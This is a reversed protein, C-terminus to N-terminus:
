GARSPAQGAQRALLAPGDTVPDFSAVLEGTHKARYMAQDARRILAESSGHPAASAAVGVAASVRLTTATGSITLSAPVEVSLGALRDAIRQAAALTEERSAEDLFVVFEDGAFRCPTDQRRVCGRLTEAVAVLVEDGVAHGHTDNVAKFDDVDVFVVGITGNPRAALAMDMREFLRTRNALRTLADVRAQEILEALRRENAERLFANDIILSGELALQRVLEREQPQWTRSRDSHSCVVGGLVEGEGGTIPFAIYSRLGIAERVVDPVLGDGIADEVDLVPYDEGQLRRSWLPVQDGDLGVLLDQIAEARRPDVDVMVPRGIRGAEDALYAVAHQTGLEDKVVRALVGAAERISLAGVGESLLRRMASLVRVEPVEPEGASGNTGSTGVDRPESVTGELQTVAM